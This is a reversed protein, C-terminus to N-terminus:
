TGTAAPTPPPPSASCPPHRWLRAESGHPRSCRPYVYGYDSYYPAVSPVYGWGRGGDRTRPLGPWRFRCYGSLFGVRPSAFSLGGVNECSDNIDSVKRWQKGGDSTAYVEALDESTSTGQGVQTAILGTSPNLFFIGGLDARPFRGALM